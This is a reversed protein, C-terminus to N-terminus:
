TTSLEEPVEGNAIAQATKLHDPHGVIKTVESMELPDPKKLAEKKLSLVKQYSEDIQSAKLHGGSLAKKIAEIARPPHDPENCYLLMDCGAQLARVPIEEVSWNSALAKMDLDDSIVLKQYRLEERLIVKLFKESLTVPWEPDIKSFKIHSTMVLSLRARFTKKFPVMERDLLTKLDTDEVPLAEHSDLLTNGHGPFHKACPLIGSKIYGRVLASAIKAVHEPDTGISRDGIVKNQSNTLIDVCPAFDLNVGIARLEQGMSHAFKFALATSDIDGLKRLPPWQTFPAGLRAVRGGEMDISIFLPAKDKTKHRLNQIDTCLKHVQKPSEINRSFLIVGGINNAIIFEEEKQSLEKGEIGIIFLQGIKEIM